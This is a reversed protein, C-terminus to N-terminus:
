LFCSSQSSQPDGVTLFPDIMLTSVCGFSHTCTYLKNKSGLGSLLLHSFKLMELEIKYKSVSNRQRKHNKKFVM